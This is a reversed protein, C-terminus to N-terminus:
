RRSTHDRAQQAGIRADTNRRRLTASPPEGFCARYARAFEGFHWFGWKVAEASVSTTSPTAAILAQHVRNLRLRTLYALPALGMVEKFATQLTRESVAAVRCLDTIGPHEGARDLAYAEVKEVIRTYAQRTRDARDPEFEEAGGLAGLLADVLEVEAAERDGRSEDFLSPQREAVTALRKGLDFLDRVRDPRARLLEVGSPLHFERGRKRAELHSRIEGPAIMVIISEWNAGTVVAVEVRPEVALLLDSRVQLGNVTGRTRPGFAAYAVTDELAHTRTRVRHSTSHFLLATTELRVAVRRARFPAAELQVADLKISEIGANADAPDTMEVVSVRSPSKASGYDM